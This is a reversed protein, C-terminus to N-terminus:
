DGYTKVDKSNFAWGSETRDYAISECYGCANYTLVIGGGTTAKYTVLYLHKDTGTVKVVKDGVQLSDLLGPIEHLKEINANDVEVAVAGDIAAKLIGVLVGGLDVQNGQGAIKTEILTLLEQKNMISFDFNFDKNFDGM